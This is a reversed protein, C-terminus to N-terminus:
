DKDKDKDRGKEKEKDDDGKKAEKQEISVVRGAVTVTGTRENGSNVAVTYRLEADGRGHTVALSIWAVNV